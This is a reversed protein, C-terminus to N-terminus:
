WPGVTKDDRQARMDIAACNAMLARGRAHLGSEQVKWGRFINYLFASM